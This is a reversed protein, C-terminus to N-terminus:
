TLPNHQCAPTNISYYFWHHPKSRKRAALLKASCKLTEAQERTALLSDTNTSCQKFVFNYSMKLNEKCRGITVTCHGFLKTIHLVSTFDTSAFCHLEQM